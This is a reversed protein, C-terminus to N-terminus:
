GLSHHRGAEPLRDGLRLVMDKDIIGGADCLSLRPGSTGSPVAPPAWSIAVATESGTAARVRVRTGSGGLSRAGPQYRAAIKSTKPNPKATPIVARMRQSWCWCGTIEPSAMVM